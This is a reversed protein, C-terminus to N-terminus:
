FKKQLFCNECLLKVQEMLVPFEGLDQEELAWSDVALMEYKEYKEYDDITKQNKAKL